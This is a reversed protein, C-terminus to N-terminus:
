EQLALPLHERILTIGMHKIGSSIVQYMEEMQEPDGDVDGYFKVEFTTFGTVDRYFKLRELCPQCTKNVSFSMLSFKSVSVFPDISRKMVISDYEYMCLLIHQLYETVLSCTDLFMNELSTIENRTLIEAFVHGSYANIRKVFRQCRFDFVHDHTEILGIMLNLEEVFSVIFTRRLSILSENTPNHAHSLCIREIRTLWQSFRDFSLLVIEKASEDFDLEARALQYFSNAQVSKFLSMANASAIRFLINNRQYTIM